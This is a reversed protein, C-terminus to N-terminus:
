EFLRAIEDREFIPLPRTTQAIKGWVSPSRSSRIVRGIVTAEIQQSQLAEVMRNAQAAAVALLLSGSAIVGWPDLAFHDCLRQTEPYIPAASLAIELDIQAAVAMERLATAVGGETPDHMAHVGGVEVALQAERLVSIGPTRLFGRCRRLFVEDFVSQLEAGKERAIIATAEVALRKTLVIADGPRAGDPRVLRDATTTGFLAGIVIPRALDYTVETHGGVISVGIEACAARMQDFIQDIEESEISPPLLVTALFWRPRAGTTAVDNANVQVAYWGIEDTAFTIPDSKAVLLQGSGLKLVACDRGIGPGLVLSPDHVAITQLLQALRDAPLKGLPLTM